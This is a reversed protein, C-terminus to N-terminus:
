ALGNQVKCAKVVNRILTALTVIGVGGPVPTIMSACPACAEFDVDGVINGADDVNIGVDIVVAGPKVFNQKVFKPHGIAVVLIDAQRAVEALNETKSHCITVTANEALLLMAVPKGVVMSRGLVAAKKGALPVNYHRLVEIVALPTCPYFGSPEGEMLKSVNVPTLCDMDKGPALAHTIAKSDLHKPLPMLPLVGHVTKDRNIIQIEAVLANEGINEPFVRADAALGVSECKRLANRKYAIHEPREGVRVVVLRPNFGQDNLEAIEAGLRELLHDAVPKGKIIQGM